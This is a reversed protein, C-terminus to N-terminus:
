PPVARQHGRACTEKFRSFRFKSRRFRREISFIEFVAQGQRDCNTEACNAKSIHGAARFRWFIWLVEIEANLTM